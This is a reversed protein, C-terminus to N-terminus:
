ASEDAPFESDWRVRIAQQIHREAHLVVVSFADGLNLRVLRSVPSTLKTKSLDVDRSERLLRSLDSQVNLFAQMVDARPEAAPKFAGASPVKRSGPRVAGILIKGAVSPRWPSPKEKRERAEKIAPGLRENYLSGTKVLHEVCQGVSWVKAGPTWNLQEGTLNGATKEALGNLAEIDLLWADILNATSM